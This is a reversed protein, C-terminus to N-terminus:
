YYFSFNRLSVFIYLMRIQLDFHSEGKSLGAAMGTAFGKAQAIEKQAFEWTIEDPLGDSDDKLPNLFVYLHNSGSFTTFVILSLYSFVRSLFFQFFNVDLLRYFM